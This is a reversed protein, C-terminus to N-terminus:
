GVGCGVGSGVGTGERFGENAGVIDGVGDGVGRGVTFVFFLEIILINLNYINNVLSFSIVEIISYIHPNAFHLMLSTPM